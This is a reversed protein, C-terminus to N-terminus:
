LAKPVTDKCELVLTELDPPVLATSGLLSSFVSLINQRPAEYQWDGFKQWLVFEVGNLLKEWFTMDDTIPPKGHKLLWHFVAQSKSRKRTPKPVKLSNMFHFLELKFIDYASKGEAYSISGSEDTDYRLYITELYHFFMGIADSDASSFPYREQYGYRRVAIELHNLMNKREEDNLKGFSESLNPFNKWVEMVDPDTSDLELAKERYCSSPVYSKGFEDKSCGGCKKLALNHISKGLPSSSLMYSVLQTGEMTHIYDDGNSATTFLNAERFRKTSDTEANNLKGVLGVDLLLPWLDSVYKTFESRTVGEFDVHASRTQTQSNLELYGLMMSRLVVRLANVQALEHFLRGHKAQNKEFRINLSEDLLIPKSRSLYSKLTVVWPDALDWSNLIRLLEPDSRVELSEKKQGDPMLKGFFLNELIETNQFWEHTLTRLKVISASTWGTAQRGNPGGDIGPLWRTAFIRFVHSLTAAKFDGLHKFEGMKDFVPDFKEFPVTSNPYRALMKDFLDFFIQLVDELIRSGQGVEWSMTKSKFLNELRLFVFFWDLGQTLILSWDDAGLIDESERPHLFTKKLVRLLPVEEKLNLIGKLDPFLGHLEDLLHVFDSFSYSTNQAKVVQKEWDATAIKLQRYFAELKETDWKERSAADVPMFPNLRVLTEELLVILAKGTALDGYSFASTKGGILGRKILMIERLLGDTIQIDELFYRQLFNRVETASFSDLQSGRTMEGFQDLGDQLCASLERLASVEAQGNYYKEITDRSSALCNLDNGKSGIRSKPPGESISCAQGLLLAIFFLVRLNKVM